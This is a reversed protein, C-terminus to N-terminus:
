KIMTKLRNIRDLIPPHTSFLNVLGKGRFPNAIYLHATSSSARKLQNPDSSIKELAEALGQPFRTLLAADADALYERKRSVALRILSAVLPVLLMFIIGVIAIMGGGESRRRGTFWQMRIYMDSLIAIISVLVVTMTMVLTDYNKIHSMEHAIVGELERKNLRQLLGTTVAISAHKPDRGTAFANPSSDSIIYIKPQPIGSAITLNEVTRHLQIHDKRNAPKAGSIALSIKDSWWYSTFSQIFAIIIALYLIWQENYEYSFFWGVGIVLGIFIAIMLFSNRKNSDIQKYM